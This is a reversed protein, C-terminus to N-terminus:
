FSLTMLYTTPTFQFLFDEHMLWGLVIYVLYFIPATYDKEAEEETYHIYIREMKLELTFFLYLSLFSCRNHFM